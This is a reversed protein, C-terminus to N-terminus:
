TKNYLEITRKGYTGDSQKERGLEKCKIPSTCQLLKLVEDLTEDVFTARYRYSELSKDKIIINVNYWRNIKKVVETMPENRLVLEGDKWSIYGDVNVESTQFINTGKFVIGRKGPILKGFSFDRGNDDTGYVEVDGSELTVEINKDDPYAMVNFSTGFAKVKIRDSVVIFPMEPNAKVKFYAEGTLEVKRYKGKFDNPFNLYSGANLWGSSGDPLIFNTRAGIPSYIESFSIAKKSGISGKWNLFTFFLLPIFLVAAIRALYRIFNSKTRNKNNTEAEELRLLHHIRDHIRAEDYGHNSIDENLENWLEQSVNRLEREAMLSSFWESIRKQEEETGKGKFYQRLLRSDILKFTNNESIM